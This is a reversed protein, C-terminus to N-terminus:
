VRLLSGAEQDLLFTTNQHLVKKQTHLHLNEKLTKRIIQAKHLGNALVIVERAGMIHKYGVLYAAPLDQTDFQNYYDKDGIRRVHSYCSFSSSPSIFGIKCDGGIGLLVLDLGGNKIIDNDIRKCEKHPVESKGNFFVLQSAKVNVKSFFEKYLFQNCSGEDYTSRGMWEYMVAFRCESFDVLGLSYQNALIELVRRLSNEAPLGIFLNPKENIEQIIIEAASTSMEEYDKFITYNMKECHEKWYKLM